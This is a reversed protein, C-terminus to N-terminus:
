NIFNVKDTKENILESAIAAQGLSISGDNAPFKSHSYVEMGIETLKREILDLLIENQFVGGSLVIKSTNRMEAATLAAECLLWALTNHFKGGVISYPIGNIVDRYINRILEKVPIIGEDFRPEGCNYKDSITKDSKHMLDIAAEAEFRIKRPGGAIASVADFLRGASSTLPSNINLKIMEIIKEAPLDPFMREAETENEFANFLYSVATRWPEKAAADGGPLPIRELHMLREVSTYNGFLIEGGWITGDYGLGTGDLIIGIVDNDASIGNEAMCAAMHAHHHQIGFVPLGSKAAFQTSLYDPHLDAAIYKAGSNIIRQMHDVTEEFFKFARLNTLDGIHQSVFASRGKTICITNKLEAGVALVAQSERRLKLRKPVFGRGRRLIRFKNNIFIGVSDDARILIDRNHFVFFDAISNLRESADKNTICIPEESLNASTMILVPLKGEPLTQAYYHFLVYHLPTYPLMVGIRRNGPSIGEPLVNKKKLLLIPREPSQLTKLEEEGADAIAKVTEIDPVMVALPKAQRHKRKRLESVAESNLADACLHFGGLGKVAGIKGGNLLEAVTSFITGADGEIAGNYELRLEPGCDACANPQAHFRRDSPDEYEERCDGCLEFHKMTTLPRDYPINEIITFRPGCNTCNIFPYLYRRDSPEFLESICDNCISVDPSILTENGLRNESKLIKFEESNVKPIQTIQISEIESLPPASTRINDVFEDLREGEAEILVGKTTNTVFGKIGMRGALNYIFPRFGVGQVIGTIKIQLRNILETDRMM